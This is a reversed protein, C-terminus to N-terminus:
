SALIVFTSLIFSFPQTKTSMLLNYHDRIVFIENEVSMTTMITLVTTIM